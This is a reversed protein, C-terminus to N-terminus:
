PQPRGCDLRLRVTTHWSWSPFTLGSESQKAVAVFGAVVSWPQGAVTDHLERYLRVAADSMVGALQGVSQPMAAFERPLHRVQCQMSPVVACTLMSLQGAREPVATRTSSKTVSSRKAQGCVAAHVHELYWCSPPVQLEAPYLRTVSRAALFQAKWVVLRPQWSYSHQV